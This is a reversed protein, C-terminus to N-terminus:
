DEKNAGEIATRSSTHRMEDAQEAPARVFEGHWRLYKRCIAPTCRM